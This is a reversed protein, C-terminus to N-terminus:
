VRLRPLTDPNQQQLPTLADFRSIRQAMQDPTIKITKM